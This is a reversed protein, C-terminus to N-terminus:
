VEYRKDVYPSMQQLCFQLAQKKMGLMLASASSGAERWSAQVSTGVSMYHAM